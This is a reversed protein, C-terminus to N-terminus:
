RKAALAVDLARTAAVLLDTEPPITWYPMKSHREAGAAESDGASDPDDRLFVTGASDVIAFMTGDCFVGHGGFMKKAAVPGLPALDDVLAEAVLRGAETLKAGQEGM